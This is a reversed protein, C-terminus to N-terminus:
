RFEIAPACGHGFRASRAPVALDDFLRRSMRAVPVELKTLGVIAILIATAGNWLISPLRLGQYSKAAIANSECIARRVEIGETIISAQPRMALDPVLDAFSGRQVDPLVAYAFNPGIENGGRVQNGEFLFM